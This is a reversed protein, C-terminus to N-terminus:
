KLIDPYTGFPHWDQDSYFKPVFDKVSKKTFGFYFMASSTFKENIISRRHLKCYRQSRSAGLNSKRRCITEGEVGDEEFRREAPSTQSDM